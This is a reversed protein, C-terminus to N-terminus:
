LYRPEYRITVDCNSKSLTITNTGPILFPFEWFDETDKFKNVGEELVTGEKGDIIIKKGQKLNKIIIPDNALGNITLDILDISPTIEAIAETKYTGLVNITKTNVRNLSEIIESGFAKCEFEINLYLWEDLDTDEISSDRIKGKFYNSLNKFKITAEDLFLENFKSINEYIEDRTKGEFLIKITISKSIEDKDIKSPQILKKSVTANFKKIDIGNAFM